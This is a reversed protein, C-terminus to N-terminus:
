GTIFVSCDHKMAGSTWSLTVNGSSDYQVGTYVLEKAEYVCVTFPGTGLRHTSAPVVFSVGSPTFTGEYKTAFSADLHANDYLPVGNIRFLGNSVNVDGNIEVLYTGSTPKGIMVSGDMTIRMKENLYADQNGSFFIIDSSGRVSNANGILLNNALSYLYADRGHGVINQDYNIGNIGMDIFGEEETGDNATAVIDSSAFNKLNKNQVNIQMYNNTSGEAYFATQKGEVDSIIFVSSQHYSVDLSNGIIITHYIPEYRFYDSGILTSSDYWTAINWPKEMGYGKLRNASIWNLSGDIYSRNYYNLSVDVYVHSADSVLSITNNSSKISKFRLDNGSKLSYWGEGSGLNSATNVEGGSSANIGITITDGTVAVTAAGSAILTRFQLDNGSKKVFISAEGGINSATQIASGLSTNKLFALNVSSNTAFNSISGDVYAKTVDGTGGAVSVDLLGNNWYLGYGTSVSRIFEAISGDVYAKTVDGTGSGGVVSVDLLGNNWYLGYGTSVSRIFESISGDVYDKTVDGTGGAVSVDLLGNNWYLGYGTSASKIYYTLSNDLYSRSVSNNLATELGLITNIAQQGTHYARNLYWSGPYGNLTSADTIISTKYKQIVDHILKASTDNTQIEVIPTLPYVVSSATYNVVFTTVNGSGLSSCVYRMELFTYRSSHTDISSLARQTLPEWASWYTSTFSWRVEKKLFSGSSNDTFYKIAQVNEIPIENKM